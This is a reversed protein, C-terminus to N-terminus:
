FTILLKFEEQDSECFGEAKAFAKAKKVVSKLCPTRKAEEALQDIYCFVSESAEIWTTCCADLVAQQAKASIEKRSMVIISDTIM